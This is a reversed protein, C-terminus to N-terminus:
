QTSAGAYSISVINAQNNMSGPSQNVQGIGSFGNFSTDITANYTVAALTAQNGVNQQTLFTDNLAVAGTGNVNASIAVVNNQNNMFGAAQNAQGIGSFTNFSSAITDTHTIVASLLCNDTNVQEVAVETHSLGKPDRPVSGDKIAPDTVAGASTAAVAVINGQNNISGAAQNAQGIGSFGTFSGTILDVNLDDGGYVYPDFIETVRNYANKDCKYVECQAWEDPDIQANVCLNLDKNIWVNQNIYVDKDVSVDFHVNCDPDRVMSDQALAPVALSVLLVVLFLPLLKKM